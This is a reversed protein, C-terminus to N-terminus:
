AAPVTQRIFLLSIDLLETGGIQQRKHFIKREIAVLTKCKRRNQETNASFFPLYNLSVALSNTYSFQQSTQPFNKLSALKEGTKTQPVVKWNDNPTNQKPPNDGPRGPESREGPSVVLRKGGPLPFFSSWSM